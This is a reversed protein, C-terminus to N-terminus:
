ECKIVAQDYPFLYYCFAENDIEIWIEFAVGDETREISLIRGRNNCCLMVEKAATNFSTSFKGIQFITYDRQEHCLMMAFEVVNDEFFEEILEQKKVLELHNLPQETQLVLQKNAEYLNGAELNILNDAM